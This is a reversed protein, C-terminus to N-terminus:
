VVLYIKNVRCLINYQYETKKLVM